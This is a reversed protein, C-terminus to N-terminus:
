KNLLFSKFAVNLDSLTIVKREANLENFIRKSHSRKCKTFLLEMDRGYYKFEDYNKKFFISTISDDIRWDNNEVIQKFIKLLENPTYPDISFRIPFRSNLGINYSFFCEDIERPYGAVICIFENKMESLKMNLTDIAEKSFSDKLEKSGLSYVEDIFMVGGKCSNILEETKIATQGLYKAVMDSRSVKKFINNKLIGMTLYIKALIKGLETKGVGPPGEIVTHLMDVNKNDLKQLYFIIHDIIDNKVKKMGILNNLEILSPIMKNLLELDINYNKEKDYTKGLEILDDLSNIKKNIIIMEKDLQKEDILRAEELLREEEEQLLQEEIMKDQNIYNIYNLEDLNIFQIRKNIKNDSSDSIDLPRKNHLTIQETVIPSKTIAPKKNVIPIKIIIPQKKNINKTNNDDNVSM